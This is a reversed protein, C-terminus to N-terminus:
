QSKNKLKRLAELNADVTGSSVEREEAKVSSKMGETSIDPIYEPGEFKKSEAPAVGGSSVLSSLEQRLMDILGPLLGKISAGQEQPLVERVAQKVDEKSLTAGSQHVTVSGNGGTEASGKSTEFRELITLNGKKVEKQLDRSSEFEQDTYDKRQKYYIVDGLDALKVREPSNGLIRVM